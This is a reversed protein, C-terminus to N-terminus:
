AWAPATVTPDYPALAVTKGALAHTCDGLFEIQGDRVFSHCVKPVKGQGWPMSALISPSFTPREMSGNWDWRPRDSPGVSLTHHLGCGPCKFSVLQRDGFVDHLVDM